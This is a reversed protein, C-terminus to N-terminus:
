KSWAKKQDEVGVETVWLIYFNSCCIDEKVDADSFSLAVHSLLKTTMESHHGDQDAM